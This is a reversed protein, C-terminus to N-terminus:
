KSKSTTQLKKKIWIIFKELGEILIPILRWIYLLTNPIAVSLLTTLMFTRVIQLNETEPFKCYAKLGKKMIRRIKSQDTYTICGLEQEDPEPFINIFETAGTFDISLNISDNYKKNHKNEGDDFYIYKIKTNLKLTYYMQSIDEMALWRWCRLTQEREFKTAIEQENNRNIFIIHHTNMYDKGFVWRITSDKFCYADLYKNNIPKPNVFLFFPYNTNSTVDRKVKIDFIASLSDLTRKGMSLRDVYSQLSDQKKNFAVIRPDHNEAAGITIKDIKNVVNSDGLSYYDNTFQINMYISDNFNYDSTVVITDDRWPVNNWCILIYTAIITFSLYSFFKIKVTRKDEKHDTKHWLMWWVGAFPNFKM